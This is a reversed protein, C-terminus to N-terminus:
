NGSPAPLAEDQGTKLFSDQLAAYATRAFGISEETLFALNLLSLRLSKLKEMGEISEASVRNKYVRVFEPLTEPHVGTLDVYLIDATEGPKGRGIPEYLTIIYPGPRTFVPGTKSSLATLLKKSLRFDPKYGAISDSKVAPILFINFWARSLTDQIDRADSTSVTIAEILKTYRGAAERNNEDRGLLVYSYTAYGTDEGKLEYLYQWVHAKPPIPPVDAEGPFPAEQKQACSLLNLLLVLCSLILVPRQEPCKRTQM